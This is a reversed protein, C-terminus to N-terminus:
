KGAGRRSRLGQLHELNSTTRRAGESGKLLLEQNNKLLTRFSEERVLCQDRKLKPNGTWDM